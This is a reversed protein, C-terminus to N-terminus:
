TYTSRTSGGYAIIKADGQSSAANLGTVCVSGKGMVGLCLPFAANSWDGEVEIRQPSILRRKATVTYANGNQQPMAGFISLADLTINIYPASEIKGTVSLKTDHPMLSAAFLLGSVFQSSVNGDISFENGSLTGEVTLLNSEKLTLVVGHAELEERLPSLPRQPLRGEMVFTSHAGLAAVVPILFRLTSGSEGCPLLANKNVCEPSIPEVEYFPASRTIKVGLACLCDATAEIDRNTEECRILTKKDAFSACILLRHAVSKSAIAKVTGCPTAPSVSM